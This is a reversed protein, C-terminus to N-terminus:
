VESCSQFLLLVRGGNLLPKDVPQSVCRQNADFHELVQPEPNITEARMVHPRRLLQQDARTPVKSKKFDQPHKLIQILADCATGGYAVIGRYENLFLQIRNLIGM